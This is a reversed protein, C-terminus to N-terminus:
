GSPGNMWASDGSGVYRRSTRDVSQARVAANGTSSALLRQIAEPDDDLEVGKPPTSHRAAPGDFDGTAWKLVDQATPVLHLPDADPGAYYSLLAPSGTRSLSWGHAPYWGLTRGTLDARGPTHLFTLRIKISDIFRSDTALRVVGAPAESVLLGRREAESIVHLRYGRVAAVTDMGLAAVLAHHNM